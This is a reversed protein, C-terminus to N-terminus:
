PLNHKTLYASVKEADAPTDVAILYDNTPVCIIHAGNELLRLQELSETLELDSTNLTTFLKLAQAKYCYLGIHKWYTRFQLWENISKGQYHPIPSRSFYLARKTQTLAVTVITPNLLEETTTVKTIPTSIDCDSDYATSVMLDLLEPTVIPEDGQINLIYDAQENLREYAQTVRDTGSPLESDTIIYEAGIRECEKAIREDDTAVIVRRINKSLAAREYVRQILTKGNITCLPKGPFRSSGYRAPIIGIANKM